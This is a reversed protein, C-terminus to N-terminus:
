SPLETGECKVRSPDPRMGGQEAGHGKVQELLVTGRGARASRSALQSM